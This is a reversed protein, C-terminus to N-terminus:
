VEMNGSRNPAAQQKGGQSALQKHKELQSLLSPKAKSGSPTRQKNVAKALDNVSISQGAKVQAELEAVSPGTQVSAAEQEASLGSELFAPLEKFGFDDVYHSTVIGDRQLVVVVDSVSMSHGKFDAPHNINFREYLRDLTDAATLPATYVLEYNGREVSLGYKQLESMSRFSYDRLKDSEKLQYISFTNDGDNELAATMDQYEQTTIWEEQEIGYIGDHQEIEARDFVMSETNDEYLLFVTHDADFLDLARENGLPLMGEATYGYLDRESLSISPDPMATENDIADQGTNPLYANVDDSPVGPREPVNQATAPESYNNQEPQPIVPEGDKNFTIRMDEGNLEINARVPMYGQQAINDFWQSSFENISKQLGTVVKENGNGDVSRWRGDAEAVQYLPPISQEYEVAKMTRVDNDSYGTEFTIMPDYCLDGNLTYTHMVSLQHDNLWELSLPEFNESELRLYSYEGSMFQPFLESLKNYLTQELPKAKVAATEPQQRGRMKEIPTAKVAERLQKLYGGFMTSNGNHKGKYYQYSQETISALGTNVWGQTRLPLDIGYLKFLDLVPNKGEYASEDHGVTIMTGSEVAKAIEEVRADYKEQKLLRNQEDQRAQEDRRQARDEERQKRIPTNHAECEDLRNVVAAHQYLAYKSPDALDNEFQVACKLILEDLEIETPRHAIWKRQQEDWDDKFYQSIRDIRGSATLYYLATAENEERSFVQHKGIPPEVKVRIRKGARNYNMDDFVPMMLVNTGVHYEKTAAAQQAEGQVPEAASLDIGREKAIAHYKQDIEDILAGATTRITDLSEKLERLLKSSSWEAIYGFSNAGTEIGFSQCVAYSVAEAEVERTSEDKPKANEDQLLLVNKDHLKAHAIEHIIAGVTQVESMGERIQIKQGYICRGDHGAEFPAFEIPLPSVQRLAEMFAEYHRVDGTIDETLSPLPKGETQSVDFVHVVKFCPVTVEAKDIIPQGDNGLLPAGTEPDLRQKEKESRYVIPALIAIGKEGKKVTRGWKEKWANFSAVQSANPKQMNILMVNRASYQYFRSLTRLYEMFKDSSFLDKIGQELKETIAKVQDRTQTNTAM